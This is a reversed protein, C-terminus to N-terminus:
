STMMCYAACVVLIATMGDVHHEQFVDATLIVPGLVTPLVALLAAWLLAVNKNAPAQRLPGLILQPSWSQVQGYVIIFVALFLGTISRSWGLGIDSDRLFFPLPVEFWADRYPVAKNGKVNLVWSSWLPGVCVDGVKASIAISPACSRVPRLACRAGFLFIRAASLLNINHQMKFVDQLTVPKGKSRGLQSDLGFAAWPMALVILGVLISLALTPSIAVTAAGLFYGAGKLSNKFGAHHPLSLLATVHGSCVRASRSAPTFHTPLCLADTYM